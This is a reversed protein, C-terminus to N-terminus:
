RARGGPSAPYPFQLGYEPIAPWDGGVPPLASSRGAPAFSSPRSFRLPPARYSQRTVYPVFGGGWPAYGYGWAPLQQITRNDNHVHVVTRPAAGTDRVERPESDPYETEGLRMVHQIRPRKVTQPEPYDEAFTSGVRTSRSLETLRAAEDEETWPTRHDGQLWAQGSTACGTSWGGLCLGIWFVPWSSRTSM